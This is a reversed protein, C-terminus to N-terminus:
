SYDDYGGKHQEHWIKWEQAIARSLKPALGIYRNPSALFTEPSEIGVRSLGRMLREWSKPQERLIEILKQGSREMALTIQRVTEHAQTDGELALLIYVAEALLSEGSLKINSQMRASDVHLGKLVKTMRTVALMFGSVFEALFRSSASNSLDRQHESIQDMFMTVVRPSFTKWLSKIHECNWPNRKQPMTSSGVQDESFYEKVEAIESRQLHRLDDALNAIIGFAINVELMLRLLYEPEVMQTSHDSRKLGLEELYEKEFELPNHHIVSLANYAGVAGAWKGRLDLARREIEVLSKGLRSVYEAMAYGFTLPVAWQGHTRGCQVTDAHLETLRIMEWHLKKMDPLIDQIFLDKFRLSQATDLIDVSTAGLHVYPHLEEPLHSKFVNVLARINHQTKQEEEYVQQPTIQRLADEVAKELRQSEHTLFHRIHVKLLAAECTLCSRIVAEESLHYSLRQFLEPNSLSYRHDLPSLNQFALRSEM